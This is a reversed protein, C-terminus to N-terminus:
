TNDFLSLHTLYRSEGRPLPNTARLPPLAEKDSDKGGREKDSDKGAREKEKEVVPKKDKEKEVVPKKDKEESTSAPGLSTTSTAGAVASDMQGDEKMKHESLLNPKKKELQVRYSLVNTWTIPSLLREALVKLDTRSTDEALKKIPEELRAATGRYSPYYEIIAALVNLANRAKM